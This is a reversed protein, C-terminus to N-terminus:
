PKRYRERIAQMRRNNARIALTGLIISVIGFIAIAAVIVSTMTIAAFIVSTM